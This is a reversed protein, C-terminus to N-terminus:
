IHLAILMMTKDNNEIVSGIMAMKVLLTIVTRTGVVPSM